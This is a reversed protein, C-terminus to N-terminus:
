QLECGSNSTFFSLTKAHQEHCKKRLFEQFKRIVPSFLRRDPCIMYLPAREGDWDPLVRVLREELIDQSVDMLSKYVFGKSKLALKRILDGDNASPNGHVMVIETMGEKTFSWKNYISDSLMYCLCNKTQLDGPSNLGAHDILYDPTACVVRFNEKCLPIAVLNSDAPEGYRIAIDIPRAYMDVFSDSLEIKVSVEPHMLTFQDVWDLLLNRGFDSPASLHLKGALEGRAQTIHDLGDQIMALARSTRDLFISGEDTLRLSRTSRVFLPFGIQMELRKVSASIAAPTMDLLHASKSFSGQRATEVFINLDNLAKM